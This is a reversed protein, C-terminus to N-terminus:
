RIVKMQADLTERDVTLWAEPNEPDQYGVSQNGDRDKRIIALPDSTGTSM